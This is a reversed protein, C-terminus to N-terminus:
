KAAKILWLYIFMVLFEKLQLTAKEKLTIKHESSSGKEPPGPSGETKM